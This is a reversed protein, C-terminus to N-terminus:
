FNFDKYFDDKNRLDMIKNIEKDTYQGPRSSNQSRGEDWYDREQRSNHVIGGRMRVEGSSTVNVSNGSTDRLSSGCAAGAACAFTIDASIGTLAEMEQVKKDLFVLLDNIGMGSIQQGGHVYQELRDKYMTMYNEYYRRQVADNWDEATIEGQTEIQRQIELVQMAFDPINSM